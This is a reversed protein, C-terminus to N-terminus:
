SCGTNAQRQAAGLANGSRVLAFRDIARAPSGDGALAWVDVALRDESVTLDAWHHARDDRAAIETGPPQTFRSFDLGRESLKGAPSVKAYIVGAGADYHAREGDRGIPAACAQGRLPHTREFSQDHGSLHLDVGLREFLPMLARVEARAAHSSGSAFVPAHQFVIRWAAARARESSLDQELWRLHDPAPARGPAYLGVFHAAGVEFSYSRGDRSGRPHAFRAAWEDAREGLEVEHNGYQALFPARSFLPAMQELWHDIAEGADRFREDRRRYAYDGGGLFFHPPDLALAALLEPLARTTGDPRGAIGVDCLFVVRYSESRSGPATRVAIWEPAGPVVRYAYDTAPALGRLVVENQWLPTGPLRRCGAAVRRVAGGDAPRVEIASEGPQATQWSVALTTAPDDCWSLHVGSPGDPIARPRLRRQLWRLARM